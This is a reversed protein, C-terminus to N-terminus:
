GGVAVIGGVVGSYVKCLSGLCLGRVWAFVERLCCGLFRRVAVALSGASGDLNGGFVLWSGVM